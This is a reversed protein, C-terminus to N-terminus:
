RVERSEVYFNADVQFEDPAALETPVIQWSATPEIWSYVGPRLTVRVPMAFGYVV